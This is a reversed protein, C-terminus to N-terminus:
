QWCIKRNNIGASLFDNFNTTTGNSWSYIAPANSTTYNVFAWGDCLGSGSNDSSYVQVSLDCYLCSGDDTNADYNYNYANLDTCGYVIPICSDDDTNASSDYNFMSSDTCGYIYPVCSGDNVNTFPDYNFMTPIPCGYVNGLVITDVASCGVSDVATLIYVDNCLLMAINSSSIIMGTSNSLWSYTTVPYNSSTSVMAFGDCLSDSTPPNLYMM